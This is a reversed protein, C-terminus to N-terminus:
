EKNIIFIPNYEQDELETARDSIWEECYKLHLCRQVTRLTLLMESKANLFDKNELIIDVIVGLLCFSAKYRM